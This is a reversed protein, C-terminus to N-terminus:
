SRAGATVLRNCVWRWAQQPQNSGIEKFHFRAQFVSRSYVPRGGSAGTRATRIAHRRVGGAVLNEYELSHAEVGPATPRTPRRELRERVHARRDDRPLRVHTRQAGRPAATALSVNAGASSSMAGIANSIRITHYIGLGLEPAAPIAVSCPGKTCPTVLGSVM